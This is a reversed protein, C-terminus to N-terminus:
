TEEPPPPFTLGNDDMLAKFQDAQSRGGVPEISQILVPMVVALDANFEQQGEGIEVSGPSSMMTVFTETCVTSLGWYTGGPGDLEVGYNGPGWGMAVAIRRAADAQAAPVILAAQYTYDTM